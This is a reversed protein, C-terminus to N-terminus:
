SFLDEELQDVDSPTAYLVKAPGPKFLMSPEPVGNRLRVISLMERVPDSGLAAQLAYRMAPESIPTYLKIRTHRHGSKSPWSQIEEIAYNQEFHPLVAEYQARQQETDLDLLLSWADGRIVTFGNAEANHAALDVAEKTLTSEASM